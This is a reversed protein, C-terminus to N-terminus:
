RVPQGFKFGKTPRSKTPVHPSGALDGVSNRKEHAPDGCM